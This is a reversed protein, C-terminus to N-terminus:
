GLPLMDMFYCENWPKTRVLFLDSVLIPVELRNCIELRMKQPPYTIAGSIVKLAFKALFQFFMVLFYWKEVTEVWKEVHNQM